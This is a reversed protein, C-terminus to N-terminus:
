VNFEAPAANGMQRNAENYQPQDGRPQAKLEETTISNINPNLQPLKVECKFDKKTDKYVMYLIMQTIGFAFGLVNPIAIYLDNKLLGYCFWLVACLTLFFSLLFPMFEVSKTRIVQRMISLPSAFVSISFGACIWGVVMVQRSGNTLLFTLLLILGYAGVNLLLLLKLTFVRAEKPAYVLYITIYIAEISCGIGNITELMAGENKLMAYYIWLMASLLAVVYPISQFGETSKKKYIRYFTPVPALYVMFSVINGKSVSFYLLDM